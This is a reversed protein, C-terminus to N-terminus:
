YFIRSFTNLVGIGRPLPVGLLIPFLIVLVCVIVTSVLLLKKIEKLGMVYMNIVTFLATSVIFGLYNISFAYASLLLLVIWFRKPHDLPVEMSQESENVLSEISSDSETDEDKTDDVEEITQKTKKYDVIMNFVSLIIIIIALLQPWTRPGIDSKSYPDGITLTLLFFLIGVFLTIYNTIKETRM